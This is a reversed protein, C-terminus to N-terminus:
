QESATISRNARKRLVLKYPLLLFLGGILALGFTICAVVLRIIVSVFSRSEVGDFRTATPTTHEVIALLLTLKRRLVGTRHFMACYADTLRTLFVNQRALDLTQRDFASLACDDAIGRAIIAAGYKRHIYDTPRQAILYRSFIECERDIMSFDLAIPRSGKVRMKDRPAAQEAVLTTITEATSRMSAKLREHLWNSSSTSDNAFLALQGATVPLVQGLIPEMFALTARLPKLPFNIFRPQKGCFSSHVLRMFDALSVPSPGGVDLAEGDFRDESLVLEIARALDIVDIPQLQVRGADPLPVISLRGITSLSRWTPSGSGMVLTPRIILHSIGSARVLAEARAKSQAYPYHRQDPYGAAITSVYLFRRVGADKCARLLNRTGEVNEQEYSRPDANGTRAALHIVTDVGELKSQYSTANSLDGLVPTLGSPANEGRGIPQRILARITYTEAALLIPVLTKGIFGSAGTVFLVRRM